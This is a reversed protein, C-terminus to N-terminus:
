IFPLILIIHLMTKSQIFPCITRAILPIKFSVTFMPFSRYNMLITLQRLQLPLIPIYYILLLLDVIVM